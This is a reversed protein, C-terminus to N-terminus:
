FAFVYHARDIRTANYIIQLAYIAIENLLFLLSFLRYVGDAVSLAFEIENVAGGIRISAVFAIFWNCRALTM